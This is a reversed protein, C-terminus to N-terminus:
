DFMTELDSDGNQECDFNYNKLREPVDFDRQEIKLSEDEWVKKM